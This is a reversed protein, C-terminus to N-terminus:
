PGPGYRNRRARRRCRPPPAASCTARRPRRGRAVQELGDACEGCRVLGLLQGALAAPEEVEPQAVEPTGAVLQRGLLSGLELSQAGPQDLDLDRELAVDVLVLVSDVDRALLEGAKGLGVDLPQRRAVAGPGVPDAEVVGLEVREEVLRLVALQPTLQERLVPVLGDVLVPRQEVLGEVQALPDRAHEALRGPGVERHLQLHRAVRLADPGEVLLQQWREGPRHAALQIPEVLQEGGISMFSRDHGPVPAVVVIDQAARLVADVLIPDALVEREVRGHLAHERDRALHEAELVADEGLRMGPVLRDPEVLDEVLGGALREGVEVGVEERALALEPVRGGQREDDSMARGIALVHRRHARDDRVECRRRSVPWREQAM